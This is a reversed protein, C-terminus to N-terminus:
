SRESSVLNMTHGGPVPGGGFVHVVSALIATSAVVIHNTGIAIRVPVNTRLMSIIGLEGIGFRALGQFVGGISYNAFRELYGDRSYEYGNGDRDARTVTGNEATRVGAVGSKAADDPLGGDTATPRDGDSANPEEHSLDAKFLLYAAALLAIALLGHFVPEPIM